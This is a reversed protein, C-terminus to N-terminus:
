SQESVKKKTSIVQKKCHVGFKMATGEGVAPVPVWAVVNELEAGATTEVHGAADIGEIRITRRARTWDNIEKSTWFVFGAEKALRVVKKIAETVKPQEKIHIQHFLFHAVGEVRAVGELFPVIVSSDALIRHDLDQTLFGIEVVDYMRNREDAWAIPFYPHCTGFLFGINGKKSPGRTQDAAIGYKECWQFLEGWGEYRTYHNKNSTVEEVDAAQKFWNLQRVFEDEDWKGNQADLANYHFALEHGAAKVRDYIYTSYGPEIMCWTSRIGCEELVELTAEAHEDKNTDSDHSIMAVRSVGEPWYGIFPLTLGMDVVSKMLHTILAERWLDAYPHAFYPTGTEPTTLRDWTWDMEVRDDAKLISDNVSGTGDAAPIGDEFVPMTGQQMGVITYLMNVAWRDISGSGVQIRIFAPATQEGNPQTAHLSGAAHLEARSEDDIVWPRAQLYRMPRADGLQAPLKAYGAGNSAIERCGFQEAAANLGAYSIVKGGKEAFALLAELSSKEQSLVDLVIDADEPVGDELSELMEYSIGAHALIEEIYKEFVNLGFKWRKEAATKELLVAVKAMRMM